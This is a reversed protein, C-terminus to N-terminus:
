IRDVFAFLLPEYERKLSRTRRFTSSRAFLPKIMFLVLVIGCVIPALYTILVFIQARGRVGSDLMGPNNLTHYYVGYGALFILGIYIIPLLVMVLAVVIAALRYTLTPRVRKISGQLGRLLEAAIQERDFPKASKTSPRKKSTKSQKTSGTRAGARSRKSGVSARKAISPNGQPIQLPQKCSPCKAVKGAHQEGARFSSQCRKCLVKIGVSKLGPTFHNSKHVTM